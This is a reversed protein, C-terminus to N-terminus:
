PPDGLVHCKSCKKIPLYSMCQGTSNYVAKNTSHWDHICASYVPMKLCLGDIASPIDQEIDEMIKKVEDSIPKLGSITDLIM